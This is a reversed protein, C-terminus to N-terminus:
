TPHILCQNATDGLAGAPGIAERRSQGMSPAAASRSHLM